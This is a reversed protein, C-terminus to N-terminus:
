PPPAASHCLTITTTLANGKTDLNGVGMTPAVTGPLGIHLAHLCDHLTRRLIDVGAGAAQTGAFYLSGDSAGWKGGCIFSRDRQPLLKKRDKQRPM